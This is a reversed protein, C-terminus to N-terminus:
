PTRPLEPRAAGPEIELTRAEEDFSLWFTHDEPPCLAEWDIDERCRVARPLSFIFSWKGSTVGGHIWAEGLISPQPHDLVFESPYLGDCWLFQYRRDALGCFERGLRYELWYWFEKETM